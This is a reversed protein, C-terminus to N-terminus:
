SGLGFLLNQLTKTEKYIMEYVAKKPEYKIFGNSSGRDLSLNFSITEKEFTFIVTFIGEEQPYSILNTAIKGFFITKLSAMTEPDTTIYDITARFCQYPCPPEKIEVSLLDGQGLYDFNTRSVTIGMLVVILSVFLIFITKQKM